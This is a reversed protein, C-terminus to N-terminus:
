FIEELLLGTAIILDMIVNFILDFDKYLIFNFLTSIVFIIIFDIIFKKIYKKM